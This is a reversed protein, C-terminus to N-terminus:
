HTAFSAQKAKGIRTNTFVGLAGLGLACILVWAPM